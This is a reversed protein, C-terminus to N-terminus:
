VLLESVIVRPQTGGHVKRYGSQDMIQPLASQEITGENDEAGFEASSRSKLLTRASNVAPVVVGVAEGDPHGAGTQLAAKHMTGCIFKAIM